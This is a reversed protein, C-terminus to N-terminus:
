YCKAYTDTILDFLLPSLPDGQCLSRKCQLYNTLCDNFNVCTQYGTLLDEIWQTWHLGFGRSLFYTNSLLGILGIM